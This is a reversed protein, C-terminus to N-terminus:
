GTIGYSTGYSSGFGSDDDGAGARARLRSEWDAHQEKCTPCAQLATGDALDLHGWHSRSLLGDAQMRGCLACDLYLPM